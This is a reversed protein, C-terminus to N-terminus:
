SISSSNAFTEVRETILRSGIVTMPLGTGPTTSAGVYFVNPFIEDFNRPRLGGVQTMNHALGLASGRYLNFYKEWELPTWITQTVIHPFINAHIRQSFDTLIRHAMEERDEWVSKYRLDPVPVVFFLAESDPPACEPNHRSVVNVYFYPQEDIVATKFIKRAYAKFNNGLYYNHLHVQPLKQDIGVYLTMVGMTWKMHDLKKESFQNRRFIKGRFAAADANVIVIDASWKRGNQDILAQLHRGEALYDVIETRYTITVNEQELEKLLGEVIKYIGGVVNFYGNHRFETYSLLSYIASTEFPTSGLFFSVLSVMERIEESSFYRSAHRWFSSFLVPLLKPNVNMLKKAYDTFSDFNQKVVIDATSDFIEQSKALYRNMRAEFDPEIEQFQAALRHINKYLQYTHPSHRFHVTYLPDVPYYIFPLRIGCDRAFEEFEYSMSFFSPGTDFTFGDKCIQNVRGGAQTNKELIHVTYGRKALRLATTLGGLGSGIILVSKKM